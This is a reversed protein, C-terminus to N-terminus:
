TLLRFQTCCDPICDGAVRVSNVDTNGPPSCCDDLAVDDVVLLPTFFAALQPPSM